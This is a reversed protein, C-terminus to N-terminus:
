IHSWRPLFFIDVTRTVAPRAARVMIWTSTCTMSLADYFYCDPIEDIGDYGYARTTPTILEKTTIGIYTANGNEDRAKACSPQCLGDRGVGERDCKTCHWHEGARM